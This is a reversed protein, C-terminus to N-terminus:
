FLVLVYNVKGLSQVISLINASTLHRWTGSVEPSQQLCEVLDVQTINNGPPSLDAGAGEPDPLPTPHVNDNAAERVVSGNSVGHQHQGPHQGDEHPSPVESNPHNTPGTTRAPSDTSEGDLSNQDTRDRPRNRGTRPRTAEMYRIVWSHTRKWTNEFNDKLQTM